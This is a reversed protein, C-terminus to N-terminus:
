YDKQKKNKRLVQSRLDVNTGNLRGNKTKFIKSDLNEPKKRCKVFYTEM